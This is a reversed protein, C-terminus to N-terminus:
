SYLRVVQQMDRDWGVGWGGITKERHSAIQSSRFFIKEQPMGGSEGIIAQVCVTATGWLSRGGGM